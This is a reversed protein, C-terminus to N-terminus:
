RSDIDSKKGQLTLILRHHSTESWIELNEKAVALDARAGTVAAQAEVYATEAVNPLARANNVVTRNGPATNTLGIFSAASEAM